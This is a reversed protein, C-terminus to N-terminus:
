VCGAVGEPTRRDCARVGNKHDIDARPWEGNVYLWALRHAKYTRGDARIQLYGNSNPSSGAIAGIRIHSGHASRAIWTFTGTEPNYHLLERLRGATLEDRKKMNVFVNKLFLSWASM